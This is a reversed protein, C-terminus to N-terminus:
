TKTLFRDTKVTESSSSVVPTIALLPKTFRLADISLELSRSIGPARSDGGFMNNQPAYRDYSDYSDKTCICMMRLNRSEFIDIYELEKLPVVNSWAAAKLPKRGKYLTFGGIDLSIRKGHIM